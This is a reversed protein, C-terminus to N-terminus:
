RIKGDATEKGVADMIQSYHKGDTACGLFEKYSTSYLMARNYGRMGLVLCASAELNHELIITANLQYSPTNM